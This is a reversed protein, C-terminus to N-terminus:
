KIYPLVENVLRSEVVDFDVSSAFAPNLTANNIKVDFFVTYHEQNYVAVIPRIQKGRFYPVAYRIKVIKDGQESRYVPYHEDGKELGIAKSVACFFAIFSVFLSLPTTM